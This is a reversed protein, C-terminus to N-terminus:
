HIVRDVCEPPTTFEPSRPSAEGAFCAEIGREPLKVSTHESTDSPRVPNPFAPSVPRRRCPSPHGRVRRTRAFPPSNLEPSTQTRASSHPRRGLPKIPAPAPWPTPQGNARRPARAPTSHRVCLADFVHLKEEARTGCSVWTAFTRIKAFTRRSDKEPM